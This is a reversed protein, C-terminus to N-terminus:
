VTMKLVPCAADCCDIEFGEEEYFDVLDCNDLNDDKSDAVIYVFGDDTITKAAEIASILLQRGLGKRRHDKDVELSDIRTGSEDKIIVAESHEFTITKKM